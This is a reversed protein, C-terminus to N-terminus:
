LLLIQVLGVDEPEELFLRVQRGLDRDVASRELLVESVVRLLELPLDPDGHEVLQGVVEPDVLLPQLLEAVPSREASRPPPQLRREPCGRARTRKGRGGPILAPRVANKSAHRQNFNVFLDLLGALTPGLQPVDEGSSMVWCRSCLEFAQALAEFAEPVLVPR